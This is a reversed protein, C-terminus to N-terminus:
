AALNCSQTKTGTYNGKGTCTYYYRDYNASSKYERTCYTMWSLTTSGDKIILEGGNCTYSLSSMSKQTSQTSGSSTTKTAYAYLDLNSSANFSLPNTSNYVTGNKVWNKFKYGSSLVATLKVPYGAIYNGLGTIQSIGTTTHASIKYVNVSKSVTTSPTNYTSSNCVSRVYVTRTGTSSTINSLYKGGNSATTWSSNNFSIQYGTATSSNTWSVIGNYNVQLNTPPTCTKKTTTTTNGSTNNNSSSGGCKSSDVCNGKITVSNIYKRNSVDWHCCTTQIHANCKAETNYTTNKTPFSANGATAWTCYYEGDSSNYRCYCAYTSSSNGGTTTTSSGSSGEKIWIYKYVTGVHNGSANYKGIALIYAGKSYMTFSGSGNIVYAGSNSPNCNSSNAYLCVAVRLTSISSDTITLTVNVPAKAGNNKPETAEYTTNIFKGGEADSSSITFGQGTTSSSGGSSGGSSSEGGSSGGTVTINIKKEVDNNSKIIVTAVGARLGTITASTGTNNPSVSVVNGDTSTYSLSKNSANDPIVVPTITQNEGVSLYLSNISVNIDTVPVIDAEVEVDITDKVGTISKLTIVSRGEKLAKIIGNGDVSVISSDSSEWILKTKDVDEPFVTYSIKESTGVKMKRLEGDFKIREPTVIIESKTYDSNVFVKLSKRFAGNNVNLNITAEGEGVSKVVGNNDVTVVRENSSTFEKNTIYGNSPTLSLSITYSSNVPMLLSGDKFSVDTLTLNPNGDAVVVEKSVEQKKSDSHIYTAIVTTKGYNVGTVTGNDVKAINENSSKWTVTANPNNTVQAVLRKSNGISVDVTGEPYIELKYDTSVTNSSGGKTLLSMLLIFAIVGILIWILIKNNYYFNTIFSGNSKSEEDDYEENYM